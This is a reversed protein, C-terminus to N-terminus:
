KFKILISEIEKQAEWIKPNLKTVTVIAKEGNLFRFPFAISKAKSRKDEFVSVEEPVFIEVTKILKQTETQFM